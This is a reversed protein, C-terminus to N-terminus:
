GKEEPADQLPRPALRIRYLPEMSEHIRNPMLVGNWRTRPAGGDIYGARQVIAEAELWGSHACDECGATNCTPCPKAYGELPHAAAEQEERRDVEPAPAALSTLAADIIRFFASLGCDCDGGGPCQFRHRAFQTLGRRAEGLAESLDTMSMAWGNSMAIDLVDSGASSM